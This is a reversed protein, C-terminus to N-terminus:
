NTALLMSYLSNPYTKQELKKQQQESRVILSNLITINNKNFIIRFFLKNNFFINDECPLQFNFNLVLFM